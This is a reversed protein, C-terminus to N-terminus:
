RRWRYCCLLLMLAGPMGLSGCLRITNSFQRGCHSGRAAPHDAKSGPIPEFDISLPVLWHYKQEPPFIVEPVSKVVRSQWAVKNQSTLKVLAARATHYEVVLRGTISRSHCSEVHTDSGLHSVEAVGGQSSGDRIEHANLQQLSLYPCGFAVFVCFNGKWTGTLNSFARLCAAARRRTCPCPSLPSLTHHPSIPALFNRGPQLGTM